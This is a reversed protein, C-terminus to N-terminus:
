SRSRKPSVVPAGGTSLVDDPDVPRLRNAPAFRRKIIEELADILAAPTRAFEDVLGVIIHGMRRRLLETEGRDLPGVKLVRAPTPAPAKPAAALLKASARARASASEGGVGHKYRRHSARAKFAKFPQHAIGAALCEPCHLCGAACNCAPM